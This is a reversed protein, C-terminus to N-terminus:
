KVKEVSSVDHIESQCIEQWLLKAYRLLLIMHQEKFGVATIHQEFQDAWGFSENIHADQDELSM